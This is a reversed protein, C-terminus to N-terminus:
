RSGHIATSQVIEVLELLKIKGDQDRHPRAFIWISQGRHNIADVAASRAAAARQDDWVPLALQYTSKDAVRSLKKGETARFLTRLTIADVSVSRVYAVFEEPEGREHPPPNKLTITVTETPLPVTVPGAGKQRALRLQRAVAGTSPNPAEHRLYEINDERIRGPLERYEERVAQEPTLDIGDLPLARQPDETMHVEVFLQDNEARVFHTYRIGLRTPLPLLALMAKAREAALNELERPTYTASAPGLAERLIRVSNNNM